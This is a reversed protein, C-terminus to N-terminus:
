DVRTRSIGRSRRLAENQVKKKMETEDRSGLKKQLEIYAKELEEADKFKGALMEQEAMAEEGRRLSDLEDENFEPQGQTMDISLEAM